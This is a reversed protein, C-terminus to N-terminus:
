RGGRRRRRRGGPASPSPRPRSRRRVVPDGQEDGEVVAAAGLDEVGGRRELAPVLLLEALAQVRGLHVVGVQQDAGAALLPDGVVQEPLAGVRLEDEAVLEPGVERRSANSRSARSRRRAGAASRPESLGHGGEVVEIRRRELEARLAAAGCPAPPRPPRPAALRAAVGLVLRVVLQLDRAEVLRDRPGRVLGALVLGPAPAARAAAATRWPPSRALPHDDHDGPDDERDDITATPPSSNMSEIIPRARARGARTRGSSRPTRPRELDGGVERDRRHDDGRM